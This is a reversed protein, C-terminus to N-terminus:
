EMQLIHVPLYGTIETPKKFRGLGVNKPRFTKTYTVIFGQKLTKASDTDFTGQLTLEGTQKSM